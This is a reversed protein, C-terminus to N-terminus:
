PADGTMSSFSLPGRPRSAGPSGVSPESSRRDAMELRDNSAPGANVCVITATGGSADDRGVGNISFTQSGLSEDYGHDASNPDLPRMESVFGLVTACLMGVFALVFSQIRFESPDAAHSFGDARSSTDSRVGEGPPVRMRSTVIEPVRM